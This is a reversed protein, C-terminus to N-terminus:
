VVIQCFGSARLFHRTWNSWFAVKRMSIHDSKLPWKRWLIKALGPELEMFVEEGTREANLYAGGIDIAAAKRNERAAVVLCMM